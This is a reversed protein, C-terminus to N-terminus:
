VKRIVNRRGYKSNVNKHRVLRNSKILNDASGGIRYSNPLVATTPLSMVPVSQVTM